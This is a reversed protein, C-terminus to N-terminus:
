GNRRFLYASDELYSEGDVSVTMQRGSWFSASGREGLANLAVLQIGSSADAASVHAAPIRALVNVCADKPGMGNAMLELVAECGGVRRLPTPNGTAACAGVGDRVATGAGLLLDSDVVGPARFPTGGTTVGLALERGPGRGLVVVSTPGLPETGDSARWAMWTARAEEDLASEVGRGTSDAFRRAGEGVLLEQGGTSWWAWAVKSPCRVGQLDAVGGVRGTRGDILFSSLRVAGDADPLAGLGVGRVAPDAEARSLLRVIGSMVDAPRRGETWPSPFDISGTSDGTPFVSVPTSSIYVEARRASASRTAGAASGPPVSGFAAGVTAGMSTKIFTRRTSMPGEMPHTGPRDRPLSNRPEGLGFEVDAPLRPRATYRGPATRAM